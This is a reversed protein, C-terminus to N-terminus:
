KIRKKTIVDAGVSEYAIDKAFNFCTKGGHLKLLGRCGGSVTEVIIIIAICL